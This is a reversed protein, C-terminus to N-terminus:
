KDLADSHNPPLSPRAVAALRSRLLDARLIDREEPKMERPRILQLHAPQCLLLLEDALARPVGPFMGLEVGLRWVSLLNIAEKSSITFANALTGFARGVTNFVMRPKKELLAERANQEHEVLQATVKRLKALIEEESEGLTMQNSVQFINGLAETGEGYLGRM